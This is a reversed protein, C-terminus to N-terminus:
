RVSGSMWRSSSSSNVPQSNARCPPQGLRGELHFVSRVADVILKVDEELLLCGKEASAGQAVALLGSAPTFDAPVPTIDYPPFNAPGDSPVRDMMVLDPKPLLMLAMWGTLDISMM